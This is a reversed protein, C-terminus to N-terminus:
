YPYEEKKLQKKLTTIEERYKKLTILSAIGYAILVLVFINESNIM